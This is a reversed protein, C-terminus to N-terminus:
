KLLYIEKFIVDFLLKIYMNMIYHCCRLQILDAVIRDHQVYDYIQM